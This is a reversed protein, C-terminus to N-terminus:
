LDKHFTRRWSEQLDEKPVPFSSCPRGLATGQGPQVAGDRGSEGMDEYSLHYRGTILETAEEPSTAVRRHSEQMPPGTNIKLGAKYTISSPVLLFALFYSEM